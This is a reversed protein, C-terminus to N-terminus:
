ASEVDLAWSELAITDTITGLQLSITLTIATSMDLTLAGSSCSCNVQSTVAMYQNGASRGIVQLTFSQFETSANVSVTQITTNGVQIVITKANANNTCSTNVTLKFSGTNGVAVQTTVAQTEDTTDTVSYATGTASVKRKNYQRVWDSFFAFWDSKIAGTVDTLAVRSSLIRIV